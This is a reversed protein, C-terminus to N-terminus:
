GHNGQIKLDALVFLVSLVINSVISGVPYRLDKPDPFVRRVIQNCMERNRDTEALMSNIKNEDALVFFHSLKHQLTKRKALNLIKRSRLRMM